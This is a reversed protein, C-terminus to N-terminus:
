SREAAVAPVRHGLSADRRGAGARKPHHDAFDGSVGRAPVEPLETSALVAGWEPRVLAALAFWALNLGCLTLAMREWRRCSGTDVLLIPGAAFLPVVVSPALGLHRAALPIAAFETVWTQFNLLLLGRKSVLLHVVARTAAPGASGARHPQGSRLALRVM